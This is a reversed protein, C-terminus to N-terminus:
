DTDPVSAGALLNQNGLPMRQGHGAHRDAPVAFVDGRGALIAGDLEAVAVRALFREGELSVTGRDITHDEAGIVSLNGASGLVVRHFDPVRLCPVLLPSQAAM